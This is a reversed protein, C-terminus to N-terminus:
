FHILILMGAFIVWVGRGDRLAANEAIPKTRVADSGNAVLVGLVADDGFLVFLWPRVVGAKQSLLNKM